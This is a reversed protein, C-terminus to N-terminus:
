GANDGLTGTNPSCFAKKDNIQNKRKEQHAGLPVTLNTPCLTGISRLAYLSIDGFLQRKLKLVFQFLIIELHATHVWYLTLLVAKQTLQTFTAPRPCERLSM